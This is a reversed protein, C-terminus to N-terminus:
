GALFLVNLTHQPGVWVDIRSGPRRGRLLNGGRNRNTYVLQQVLGPLISWLTWATASEGVNSIWALSTIPLFGHGRNSLPTPPIQSGPVVV